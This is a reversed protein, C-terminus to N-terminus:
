KYIAVERLGRWHRRKVVKAVGVRGCSEDQGGWSSAVLPAMNPRLPSDPQLVEVQTGKQDM